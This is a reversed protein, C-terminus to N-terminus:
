PPYANLQIGSKLDCVKISFPLNVYFLPMLFKECVPINVFPSNEMKRSHRELEEKKIKM